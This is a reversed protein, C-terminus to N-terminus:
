ECVRLDSDLRSLFSPARFSHVVLLSPEKELHLSNASNGACGSTRSIALRSLLEPRGCRFRGERDGM